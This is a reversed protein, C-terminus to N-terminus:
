NSSRDGGGWKKRGGERGRTIYSVHLTVNPEPMHNLLNICEAIEGCTYRDDTVM